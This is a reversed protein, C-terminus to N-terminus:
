PTEADIWPRAELTTLDLPRWSWQWPHGAVPPTVRGGEPLRGECGIPLGYGWGAVEVGDIVDVGVGLIVPFMGGPGHVEWFGVTEGSEVHLQLHRKVTALDPTGERFPVRGSRPCRDGARRGTLALLPHPTLAHRVLHGDEIPVTANCWDCKATPSM